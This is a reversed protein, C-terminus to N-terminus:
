APLMLLSQRAKPRNAAKRYSGCVICRITGDLGEQDRHTGSPCVPMQAKTSRRM